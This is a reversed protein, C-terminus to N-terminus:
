RFSRQGWKSCSRTGDCHSVFLGAKPSDSFVILVFAIHQCKPLTCVPHEVWTWGKLRYADWSLSTSHAYKDILAKCAQEFQLRTLTSSPPTMPLTPILQATTDALNLGCFGCFTVSLLVRACSHLEFIEFFPKLRVTEKGRKEDEIM